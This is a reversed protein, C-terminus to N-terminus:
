AKGPHKYDPKGGIEDPYDDPSVTSQRPEDPPADPAKRSNPHDAPTPAGTPTPDAPLFPDIPRSM